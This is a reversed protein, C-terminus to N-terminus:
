ADRKEKKAAELAKEYRAVMEDYEEQTTELLRRAAKLDKVGFEKQMEERIQREAGAAMDAERRISEAEDKLKQFEELNIPM